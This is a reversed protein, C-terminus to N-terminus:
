EPDLPVQSIEEVTLDRYSQGKRFSEENLKVRYAEAKDKSSFEAIIITGSTAGHGITSEEHVWNEVLRHTARKM